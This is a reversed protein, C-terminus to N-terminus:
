SKNRFRLLSRRDRKTPRGQSRPTNFANMKIQEALLERTQISEHSEDFLTHADKASLRSKCLLKVTLNYEFMGRRILLNDGPVINKAPKARTDNVLVKGSKIADIALSRTKYFRACWLWRDLRM